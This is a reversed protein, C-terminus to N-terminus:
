FYSNSYYLFLAFTKSDIMVLSISSSNSILSNCVNIVFHASSSFMLQTSKLSSVRLLYDFM